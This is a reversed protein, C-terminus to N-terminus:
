GCSGGATRATVREFCKHGEFFCRGVVVEQLDRVTQEVSVILGHIM